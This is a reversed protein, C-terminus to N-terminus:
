FNLFGAGASIVSAAAAKKAQKEAQLRANNLAEGVTKGQLELFFEYTLVTEEILIDSSKADLSDGGKYEKPWANYLLWHKIFSGDRDMQSILVERRFSPDQFPIAGFGSLANQFKNITGAENNVIQYWNYMHQSKTVGKRLIVPDYAALGPMKIPSNGNINERYSIEKIVAKPLVVETFGVPTLGRDNSNALNATGTTSLGQIAGGTPLVFANEFVLVQFRFKAAPDASSSRAM